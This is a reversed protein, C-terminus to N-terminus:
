TLIGESADKKLQHRHPYLIRGGGFSGREVASGFGQGGQGIYELFVGLKGEDEVSRSKRWAVLRLDHLFQLLVHAADVLPIGYLVEQVSQSLVVPEPYQLADALLERRQHTRMAPLHFQGDGTGRDTWDRSLLGCSKLRWASKQGVLLFKVALDDLAEFCGDRFRLVALAFLQFDDRLDTTRLDLRKAQYPQSIQGEM